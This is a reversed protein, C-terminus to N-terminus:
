SVNRSHFKVFRVLLDEEGVRVAKYITVAHLLLNRHPEYPIKKLKNSIQRHSPRNRWLGSNDYVRRPPYM